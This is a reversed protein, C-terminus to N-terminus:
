LGAKSYVPLCQRLFSAPASFQKVPAPCFIRQLKKAGASHEYQGYGAAVPFAICFITGLVFHAPGRCGMKKYVMTPEYTYLVPTIAITGATIRCLFTKQIGVALRAIHLSPTTKGSQYL